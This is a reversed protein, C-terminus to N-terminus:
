IALSRLPAGTGPHHVVPRRRYSPAGGVTLHQTNFLNDKVVNRGSRQKYYIKLDVAIELQIM